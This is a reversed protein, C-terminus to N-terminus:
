REQRAKFTPRTEGPHWVDAVAIEFVLTSYGPISTSGSVGYALQYPIYVRWYDGARMNQLATCFGQTFVNVCAKQMGVTAWSFDGTFTEDFVYGDAYSKSPLLRGRYSYYVSDTYLPTETGSGSELEEVYIYDSDTLGPAGADKTYTLIKRYDSNSALQSIYAENREQWGAYEEETDDSESCSSLFIFFHFFSLIFVARLCNWGLVRCKEMTTNCIYNM